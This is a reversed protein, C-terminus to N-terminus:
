CPDTEVQRVVSHGGVAGSWAFVRWYYETGCSLSTATITTITTGCGHSKWSGQFNMLDALSRATDVCFWVNDNGRTWHFQVSTKGVNTTSLHTPPSFSDCAPTTVESHASHGDAAVGWAYVRWYYHTDCALDTATISNDTTGCGHNAFSGRFNFLDSLSRATDVCFGTNGIGRDWSFRVSTPSLPDARLDEPVSFTCGQTTFSAVHSHDSTFTGVAYVRWYHTRDCALGNLDVSTATTGCHHNRWTGRFNYLDDRSLATDVCFWQNDQGRDWRVRVSTPSLQTSSLDDPATFGGTCAATRFAITDSHVWVGIWTGVRSYYVTNPQLNFWDVTNTFTGLPPSPEWGNFVASLSVDVYQPAGWGSPTWAFRAAV